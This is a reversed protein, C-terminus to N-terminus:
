PLPGIALEIVVTVSYSGLNANSLDLVLEGLDTEAGGFPNQGIPSNRIRNQNSGIPGSILTVAEGVGDIDSLVVGGIM